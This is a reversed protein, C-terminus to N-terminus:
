RDGVFLDIIGVQGIRLYVVGVELEVRRGHGFHGLRIVHEKHVEEGHRLPKVRFRRLLSMREREVREKECVCAVLRQRRFDEFRQEVFGRRFAMKFFEARRYHVFAVLPVRAIAGHVTVVNIAATGLQGERAGALFARHNGIVVHHLLFHRLAIHLGFIPVFADPGHRLAAVHFHVVGHKREHIRQFGVLLIDTRIEIRFLGDFVHGQGLATFRAEERAFFLEGFEGFRHLHREVGFSTEPDGYPGIIGFACRGALDTVTQQNEFVGVAVALRVLDDM